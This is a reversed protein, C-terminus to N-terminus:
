KPLLFPGTPGKLKFEEATESEVETAADMVKGPLSTVARAGKGGLNMAADVAADKVRQRPLGGKAAAGGMAKTGLGKLPVAAVVPAESAEKVAKKGGKEKIAKKMPEKKNGDGDMDLFDPKAAEKVEEKKHSGKEDCHEYGKGERKECKVKGGKQYGVHGGKQMGKPIRM